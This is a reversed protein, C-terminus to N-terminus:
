AGQNSWNGNWSQYLDGLFRQWVDRRRTVPFPMPREPKGSNWVIEFQGDNRIRGVRVSKWTHQTEPDVYVIGEPARYSQRRIGRQVVAVNATGEQEVAQAWLQTGFYAAELPDGLVRNAGYLARFARVFAHNEASDISQFYNWTAYDGALGAVHLAQLEPEALSFSMTPMADSSIGKARLQRFFAINTDGNITNFVVDPKREHIREIIHEVDTAGLLVYEEGVVSGGLAHVYDRIIANATRPFVYDSGVLFFRNGIHGMTWAVAPVIQQNPAAGTYVINPSSELGEYQVPYFLLHNHREVVPLVTKRSASTWCGFIVTVKHEVILREAERAFTNWDSRGDVVIPVVQRGLLGGRENIEEIGLLTADVVPRESLGMTGSLSHLVGVRIPERKGGGLIRCGATLYPLTTCAGVGGLARLIARRSLARARHRQEHDM